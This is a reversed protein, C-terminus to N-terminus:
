GVREALGIRPSGDSGKLLAFQKPYRRATRKITEAEAQLEDAILEPSLSGRRLLHAMRQRVSLHGALDAVDAVNVRRFATRDEAFSIEFGVAPRLGGMNAKRNYLGMTIQNGGPMTDALKVFWTARSGNHWFASGFPKQDAGESKSVHAVHLTGVPGIQRVAQFYRGAVEAAEPPGDCAFAISDFVAFDLRDDQVTRRIRDICHVLPRDCRLYRVDPMDAGFLCELRLRHDEGALEWDFIGVRLRRQALRGALYLALYSKAAGGDGFLIQPHRALLTLGDIDIVSDPSPRPVDRLSVAPQGAREAVLVRQVFEELLGAWDIDPAKARDALYIARAKRESIKSLNFDAVSLVGDFTRAGALDCRVTLEGTLEDWKRRLRDVIFEIGLEELLLRYRGEDIMRFDRPVNDTLSPEAGFVDAAAISSERSM